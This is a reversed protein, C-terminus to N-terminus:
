KNIHSLKFEKLCKYFVKLPVYHKSKKYKREIVELSNEYKDAKTFRASEWDLIAEVYDCQDSTKDETIHHKCFKKHIKKIRKTGLFPLFIYMLIKDLDHFPYIICGLIIKQIKLMVKYHKYTYPIHKYSAIINRLM